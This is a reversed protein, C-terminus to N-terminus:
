EYYKFGDSYAAAKDRDDSKIESLYVQYAKLAKAYDHKTAFGHKYMQQINRLADNYGSGVAIMFHKLAREM